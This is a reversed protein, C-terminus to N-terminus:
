IRAAAFGASILALRVGVRSAIAAFAVLRAGIGSLPGVAFVAASGLNRMVTGLKGTQNKAKEIATGTRRTEARLTKMGRRATAMSARWRNMANSFQSATLKGSKMRSELGTFSRSLNTIQLRSAGALQLSQTLAKYQITASAVANKQRLLEKSLLRADQTAKKQGAAMKNAGGGRNLTSQLKSVTSSLAKLVGTLAATQQRLTQISKVAAVTSIELQTAM